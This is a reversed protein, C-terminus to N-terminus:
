EAARVKGAADSKMDEPKSNDKGIEIWGVVECQDDKEISGLVKRVIGGAASPSPNDILNNFEDLSAM